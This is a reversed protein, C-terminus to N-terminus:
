HISDASFIEPVCNHRNINEKIAGVTMRTIGPRIDLRALCSAQIVIRGVNKNPAIFIPTM